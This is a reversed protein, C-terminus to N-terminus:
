VQTMLWAFPEIIGRPEVRLPVLIEGGSPDVLRATSGAVASGYFRFNRLRSECVRALGPANARAFRSPDRFAEECLDAKTFVLAVPVDVKRGRRSTRLADLYSILQMAFLEQGQGDGVVELTDILVVLGRCRAILARIIKNSKPRELEAQVAEGAVDPTVIDFARGRRGASVECHVWQWRDPENPTKGPFRQHELALVLNRHLGLSFPGRAMGHLGGDGRSLMDLLMGLYVTKGVGSPGLVGVFRPPRGAAAISEIVDAPAYCGGCPDGQYVHGECLPCTSSNKHGARYELLLTKNSM